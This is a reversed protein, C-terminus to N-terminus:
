EWINGGGDVFEGDGTITQGGVFHTNMAKVDGNGRIEFAARGGQILSDRVDISGNGVILLASTAANIESEIIVIDCNGVISVGVEDSEIYVRELRLQENGLCSVPAVTQLRTAAPAPADSSAVAARTHNAPRSQSQGLRAYLAVTLAAFGLAARM